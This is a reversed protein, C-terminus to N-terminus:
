DYYRRWWALPDFGSWGVINDRVTVIRCRETGGNRPGRLGRGVMQMFRVPSFVPRAILIMDVSPADFGTSFLVANTIVRIEGRRFAAVAERRASRDTDGSVPRARIGRLSLAAALEVAHDVNNAFLLISREPAGEIARVIAENRTESAALRSLAAPPLDEFEKLFDLESPLLEFPEEIELPEMEVRALYGEARLRTYLGDQERPVVRADFRQAHRRTEDEGASRFPTATLGLLAPERPGADRDGKRRPGIAFGFARLAETYSRAIAHHSEDIVLLSAAALWGVMALRRDNLTQILSVVVTPRDPESPPPSRQGGWFRVIRLEQGETGENAWVQRFAEVAQLALEETQAVWIVLPRGIARRLACRVAAEVAVRTKGAGTPLSLVARKRPECAALMADLESLVDKQFDHLPPLPTPGMVQLEAELRPNAAGAFVSPFGLALVFQRAEDTGWRHPPRFGRRELTEAIARLAGPGHIDLCLQALAVDTTDPRLVRQAAEPLSAQLAEPGGAARLLRHPLDPQAAVEGRLREAESLDLAEFVEAAPRALAGLGALAELKRYLLDRPPLRQEAAQAVLLCGDEVFLEIEETAEGLTRELRDAYVILPEPRNAALHEGLGPIDESAPSPKARAGVVRYRIRAALDQAGNERWVAATKADLLVSAVGARLALAHDSPRDTVCVERLPVEGDGQPDPISEPVFGHRAAVRWLPVLEAHDRTHRSALLAQWVPSLDSQFRPGGEPWRELIPRDDPLLRDVIAREEPELQRRLELCAALSVIRGGIEVQGYKWLLWATPHPAPIPPYRQQTSYSGRGGITVTKQPLEALRELLLATLRARPPGSLTVILDEGPLGFIQDRYGISSRYASSAHPVRKTYEHFAEDEARRREKNAWLNLAAHSDSPLPPSDAFGFQKLIIAYRSGFDPDITISSNAPIDDKTIISGVLLKDIPESWQGDATRVKRPRIRLESLKERVESPAGKLLEWFEEGEAQKLAKLWSEEDTGEIGFHDRLARCVEEDAALEPHLAAMGAKVSAGPMVIKEACALEGDRTPLIELSKLQARLSPTEALLEVALLVVHRAIAPDPSAVLELWRNAPFCRLLPSRKPYEFEDYHKNLNRRVTAGLQRLRADRERTAFCRPHVFRYAQKEPAISCWREHLQPKETPPLFLEEPRHLAGTASAVFAVTPLRARLAEHLPAAPEDKRHLERPLLAIPLGPDEASALTPLAEAILDAACRMLAGNWAEGTLATRDSNLKWRTDLIGPVVSPTRTPFANWLEGGRPDSEGVPVAWRITVEGRAHLRGADRRAEVDDIRCRREFLRWREAKKGDQLVITEGQRERRLARPEAEPRRIVLELDPPPFLLFEAPFGALERDMAAAADEAALEARVVTDAWGLLEDLVPDGHREADLDLPRALRMGPAEVDGPLGAAERAQAACWGPDFRFALGASIMDVRGGLRLLSRFGLGFRGVEEGGKPSVGGLILARLGEESLPEGTNAAYLHRDGLRLEIRANPRALAADAANQVLELIQRDHYGSALLSEEERADKQVLDPNAEWGALTRRNLEELKAALHPKEREPRDM